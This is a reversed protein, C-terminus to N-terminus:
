AGSRGLSWHYMYVAPFDTESLPSQTPFTLLHGGWRINAELLIPGGECVALDWGVFPLGAAKQADLAIRRAESWLPVPFGEVQAGSEPLVASRRLLGNAWAICPSLRGSEVDISAIAGGANMNDVIMGATPIRVMARLLRAEGAPNEYTVCRITSIADPALARMAPHPELCRQLVIPHDRSQEALRRILEHADVREGSGTTWCGPGVRMWRTAGQGSWLDAPKAFLSTDPLAAACADPAGSILKGSEFVALSPLVPLGRAAAWEPFWRKNGISSALAPSRRQALDGLLINTQVGSLWVGWARRPRVAVAWYAAFPSPHAGCRLWGWYLALFQRWPPVGHEAQLARGHTRVLRACRAGYEFPKSVLMRLQAARGGAGQIRSRRYLGVMLATPGVGGGLLAAICRERLSFGGSNRPNKSGAKRIM